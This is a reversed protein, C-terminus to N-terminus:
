KEIEKQNNNQEPLPNGHKRLQALQNQFVEAISTPLNDLDFEKENRWEGSGYHHLNYLSGITNNINNKTFRSEHGVGPFIGPATEDGQTSVFGHTDSGMTILLDNAFAYKYLFEIEDSQNFGHWVEIGDIGLHKIRELLELTTINIKKNYGFPHALIAVGGTEKAFEIVDSATPWLKSGDVYLEGKKNSIIKKLFHDASDPNFSADKKAKENLFKMGNESGHILNFTKRILFDYNIKLLKGNYEVTEPLPKGFTIIDNANVGIEKLTLTKPKGNDDIVKIQLVDSLSVPNDTLNLKNCLELRRKALEVNRSLKFTKDLYPFSGDHILKNAKDYDYGYVLIEIENNPDLKCTVEVGNIENAEQANTGISDHDTIAFIGLKKAKEAYFQASRKGDSYTETHGHMDVTIDFKGAPNEFAFSLFKGRGESKAIARQKWNDLYTHNM